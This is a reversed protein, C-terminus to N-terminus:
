LWDEEAAARIRKLLDQIVPDNKAWKRLRKRSGGNRKNKSDYNGFINSSIASQTTHLIEATRVQGYGDRLLHLVDRQRTTLVGKTDILRWYERNLQEQLDALLEKNQYNCYLGQKNSVAPFLWPDTLIEKYIHQYNQSKPSDLDESCYQDIAWDSKTPM